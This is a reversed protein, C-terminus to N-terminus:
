KRVLKNKNEEIVKKRELFSKNSMNFGKEGNNKLFEETSCIVKTPVGGVVLNDGVSKTVVSGAAVIVGNGITVGPLITTRAGIFCDNGIKIEGFLDTLDADLKSISNDHTLFLVETSITVNDGFSLLYPENIFLKSFCKFNSGFIIGSKKYIENYMENIKKSNKRIRKYYFM